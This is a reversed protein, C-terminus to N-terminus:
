IEQKHICICSYVLIFCTDTHTHMYVAVYMYVYTYLAIHRTKIHAYINIYVRVIHIYMCVSLHMICSTPRQKKEEKKEEEQQQQRSKHEQSLCANVPKVHLIWKM